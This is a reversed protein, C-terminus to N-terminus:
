PQDLVDLIQKSKKKKKKKKLFFFLSVLITNKRKYSETLIMSIPTCLHLVFYLVGLVVKWFILLNKEKLRGNM